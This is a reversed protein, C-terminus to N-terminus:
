KHQYHLAEAKQQINTTTVCIYLDQAKINFNNVIRNAERRLFQQRKILTVSYYLSVIVSEICCFGSTVLSFFSKLAQFNKFHTWRKTEINKPSHTVKLTPLKCPFTMLSLDTKDEM